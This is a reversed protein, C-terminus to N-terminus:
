RSVRSGRRRGGRVTEIKDRRWFGTAFVDHKLRGSASTYRALPRMPDLRVEVKALYDRAIKRSTM